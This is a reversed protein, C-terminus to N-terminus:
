AGRSLTQPLGKDNSRQYAHSFTAFSALGPELDADAMEFSDFGMRALFFLQDTRVYGVARLEGAFGYRERLVRGQTYGRGDSPGSFRCAILSLQPLDNAILELKSEGSLVVGLRGGRSLWAGRENQWELFEVIVPIKADLVASAAEGVYRWEDSELAHNRLLRRPM